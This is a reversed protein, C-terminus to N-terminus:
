PMEREARAIIVAACALGISTGMESDTYDPIVHWEVNGRADYSSVIDFVGGTLEHVIGILFGTTAWDDTDPHDHTSTGPGGGEEPGSPRWRACQDDSIYQVGPQWLNKILKANHLVRLATNLNM